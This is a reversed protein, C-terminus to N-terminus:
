PRREPRRDTLAAELRAAEDDALPCGGTVALWVRPYPVATLRALQAITLGRARRRDNLTPATDTPMPDGETGRRDLRAANPISGLM